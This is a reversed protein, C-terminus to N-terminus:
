TRKLEIDASGINIVIKGSRKALRAFKYAGGWTHTIYCLCYDSADIMWRNRREIAFKPYGEIEPYMTDSMDEGERKETPLYALVVWVRIHPYVKRLQKLCNYVMTDFSGQNGVYFIEVGKKILEEVADRLVGTDLDCYERHGFFTCVSM